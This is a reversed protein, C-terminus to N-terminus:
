TYIRWDTELRTKGHLHTNRGVLRTVAGYVFHRQTNAGTIMQVSHYAIATNEFAVLTGVEPVIERELLCDDPDPRPVSQVGPTLRHLRLAGGESAATSNFYILFVVDRADSDRHIERVYGIRARSYDYLLECAVQGRLRAITGLLVRRLVHVIRLLFLAGVQRSSANVLPTNQLSERCREILPALRGSRNTYVDTPAYHVKLELTNVLMALFEPSNLRKELNRWEASSNLLDRFASSTNPLLARGGMVERRSSSNSFLEADDILKQCRGVDLFGEHVLYPFPSRFSEISSPMKQSQESM